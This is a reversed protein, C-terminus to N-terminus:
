TKFLRVDLTEHQMASIEARFASSALDALEAAEARVALAAIREHQGGLVRQGAIQGLPVLRVAASVLNSAFAHLYLSVTQAAPLDLDRAAEAVAVPLARAPVEAGRLGAQALAFATGQEVTERLREGSGALARAVADLQDPDGGRLGCGLLVADCWGAGLEIVDELWAAFSEADHVEGAAVAQELGHSYAFAGTPFAPSLWQMLALPATPDPMTTIITTATTM